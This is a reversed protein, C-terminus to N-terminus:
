LGRPVLNLSNMSVRCRLIRNQEPHFLFYRSYLKGSSLFMESKNLESLIKIPFSKKEKEEKILIITIAIIAVIITVVVATTTPAGFLQEVSTRMFYREVTYHYMNVTAFQKRFLEIGTRTYSYKLNELYHTAYSNNCLVRAYENKKQKKKIRKITVGILLM